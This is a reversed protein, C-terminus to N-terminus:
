LVEGECSLWVIFSKIIVILLNVVFEHVFCYSSKNQQGSEHCLLARNEQAPSSDSQWFM